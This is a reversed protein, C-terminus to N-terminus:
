PRLAPPLPLPARAQLALIAPPTPLRTMQEAAAQVVSQQGYGVNVCWLGAFGDLLRNGHIDTLWSGQGSQLIRPGHEEQDRWSSVPHILHARDLSVLTEPTM